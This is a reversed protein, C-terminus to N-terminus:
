LELPRNRALPVTGLDDEPIGGITWVLSAADLYIHKLLWGYRLEGSSNGPDSGESEM